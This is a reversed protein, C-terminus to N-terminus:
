QRASRGSLGAQVKFRYFDRCAESFNLRADSLLYRAHRTDPSLLSWPRLLRAYHIDAAPAQLPLCDPELFARVINYGSLCSVLSGDFTFRPNCEILWIRGGSDRRMDFGMAGKLRLVDATRRLVEFAADDKVVSFRQRGIQYMVSALIRGADCLLLAHLDSGEIFEQVLIPRYDLDLIRRRTAEDYAEAKWVGAGSDRDTPKVVLPRGRWPSVFELVDEPNPCTVTRPHPLDHESCLRAFSDKALLAEFLSASPVPFTDAELRDRHWVIFRTSLADGAVVFRVALERAIANVANVAEGSAFAQASVTHFGHCYKSRALRSANGAATGIVHSELGADALYRMVRYPLADGTALLIVRLRAGRAAIPQKMSMWDEVEHIVDSDRLDRQV